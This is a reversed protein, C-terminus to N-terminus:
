VGVENSNVFHFVLTDAGSADANDVGRTRSGVSMLKPDYMFIKEATGIQQHYSVGKLVKAKVMNQIIQVEPAGPLLSVTLKLPRASSDFAVAKGNNGKMITSFEDPYEMTYGDEHLNDFSVGAVVLVSDNANFTRMTESM